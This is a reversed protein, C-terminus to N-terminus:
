KGGNIKRLLEDRAAQVTPISTRAGELLGREFTTAPGPTWTGIVHGNVTVVTPETLKGYDKRFQSSPMVNM